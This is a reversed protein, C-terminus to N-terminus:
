NLRTIVEKLSQWIESETPMPQRTQNTARHHLAILYMSSHLLNGLVSAIGLLLAPIYSRGIDGLVPANVQQLLQALEVLSLPCPPLDWLAQEKTTKDLATLSNLCFVRDAAWLQVKELQSFIDSLSRAFDIPDSEVSPLYGLDQPAGLYQTLLGSISRNLLSLYEDNLNPKLSFMAM